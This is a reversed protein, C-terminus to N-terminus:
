KSLARQKEESSDALLDRGAEREVKYKNALLNAVSEPIEVLCNKKIRYLYGNVTVTDESDPPEGPALPIMFSVKKEKNLSEKTDRLQKDYNAKQASESVPKAPKGQGDKKQEEGKTPM